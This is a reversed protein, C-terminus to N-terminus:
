GGNRYFSSYSLTPDSLNNETRNEMKQAKTLQMASQLEKNNQKISQLVQDISQAQIGIPLCLAIILFLKKM